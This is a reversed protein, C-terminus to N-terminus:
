FFYFEYLGELMLYESIWGQLYNGAYFFMSNLMKTNFNCCTYHM